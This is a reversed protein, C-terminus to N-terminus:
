LSKSNDPNKSMQTVVRSGSGAAMLHAYILGFWGQEAPKKFKEASLENLKSEGM